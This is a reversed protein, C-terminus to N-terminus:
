ASYGLYPGFAKLAQERGFRLCEALRLHTDDTLRSLRYEVTEGERVFFPSDSCHLLLHLAINLEVPQATEGGGSRTTENYGSIGADILDLLSSFMDGTGQAQNFTEIIQSRVRHYTPAGLRAGVLQLISYLQYGWVGTLALERFRARLTLTEPCYRDFPYRRAVLSAILHNVIADLDARPM